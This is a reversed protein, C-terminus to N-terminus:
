RAHSARVVTYTAYITPCAVGMCSSVQTPSETYTAYITMCTVSMGDIDVVSRHPAREPESWYNCVHACVDYVCVDYVCVDYM